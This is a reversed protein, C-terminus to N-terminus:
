VGRKEGIWAAIGDGFKGRKDFSPIQEVEDCEHLALFNIEANGTLFGIQDLIASQRIKTSLCADRAPPRQFFSRLELGTLSKRFVKKFPM